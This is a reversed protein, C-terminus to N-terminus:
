VRDHGNTLYSDLANRVEIPIRTARGELTVCAAELKARVLDEDGRKIQQCAFLRAGSLRVYATHVELADEILAPKLFDIEMHVITWTVPNQDAMLSRHSVGILRLYDSRGREMYRLYNAHYVVGSLDTDEYYIRVPLIHIRDRFYGSPGSSETM